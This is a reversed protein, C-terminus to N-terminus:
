TTVEDPLGLTERVWAMATCIDDWEEDYAPDGEPICNERHSHLGNWITELWSDADGPHLTGKKAARRQLGLDYASQMMDLLAWSSVDHFDLDDRGRTRLTAIDCRERAIRQFQVFLDLDGKFTM